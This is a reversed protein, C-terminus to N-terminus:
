YYGANSNFDSITETKSAVGNSIRTTYRWPNVADSEWSVEGSSLNMKLTSTGSKGDMTGSAIVSSSGDYKYTLNLLERGAIEDKRVLSTVRGDADYKFTYTEVPKGASTVTITGAPAIAAASARGGSAGGDKNCGVLAVALSLAAIISYKRMM